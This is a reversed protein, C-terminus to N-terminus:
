ETGGPDRPANRLLWVCVADFDRGGPARSELLEDVGDGAAM